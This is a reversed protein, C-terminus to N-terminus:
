DDRAAKVILKIIGFSILFVGFTILGAKPSNAGIVLCILISGLWIYVVDRCFLKKFLNILNIM